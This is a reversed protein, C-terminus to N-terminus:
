LNNTAYMHLITKVVPNITENDVTYLRNEYMESCLVLLAITIDEKTDLTDPSLGTYSQIYAKSGSLIAGLLTDDEAHYIHIYNKLVDLNVESVKM